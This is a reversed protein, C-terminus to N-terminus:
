GGHLTSILVINSSDELAKNENIELDQEDILCITGNALTGDTKFFSKRTIPHKEYLFDLLNNIDVIKNKYNELDNKCIEIFNFNLFENDAGSFSIKMQTLFFYM